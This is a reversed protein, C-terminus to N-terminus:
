VRSSVCRGVSPKCCRIRIISAAAIDSVPKLDIGPHNRSNSGLSVRKDLNEWDAFPLYVVTYTKSTTRCQYHNDVIPHAFVM